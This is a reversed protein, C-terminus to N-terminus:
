HSEVIHQDLEHILNLVTDFDAAFPSLLDAAVRQKKHADWEHWFAGVSAGANRVLVRWRESDRDIRLGRWREAEQTDGREQAMRSLTHVLHRLTDALVPSAVLELPHPNPAYKFALLARFLTVAEDYDDTEFKVGM